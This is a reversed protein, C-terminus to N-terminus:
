PISIVLNNNIEEFWYKSLANLYAMVMEKWINVKKGNMKGEAV